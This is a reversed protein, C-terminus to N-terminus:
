ASIHRIPSYFLAYFSSLLLSPPQPPLIEEQNENLDFESLLEYSKELSLQNKTQFSRYLHKSLYKWYILLQPTELFPDIAIQTPYISHIPITLPPHYLTFYPPILISLLSTLDKPNLNTFPMIVCHYLLSDMHADWISEIHFIIPSILQILFPDFPHTERESKLQFYKNKNGNSESFLILNVNLECLLLLHLTDKLFHFQNLEDSCGKQQFKQYLNIIKQLAVRKLVHIIHEGHPAITPHFFLSKERFKKLTNINDSHTDFLYQLSNEKWVCIDFPLQPQNDLTYAYFCYEDLFLHRCSLSFMHHSLTQIIQSVKKDFIPFTRFNKLSRLSNFYSPPSPSPPSIQSSPTSSLSLPQPNTKKYSFYNLHPHSLYTRPFIQFHLKMDKWHDESNLILVSRPYIIMFQSSNNFKFIEYCQFTSWLRNELRDIFYQTAQSYFFYYYTNKLLRWTTQLLAHQQFNIINEDEKLYFIETELFFDTLPPSSTIIMQHSTTMQINLPPHKVQISGKVKLRKIFAIFDCALKQSPNKAYNVLHFIVQQFDDSDEIPFTSHKFLTWQGMLLSYTEEEKLYLSHNDTYHRFLSDKFNIKSSPALSYSYQFLFVFLFIYM